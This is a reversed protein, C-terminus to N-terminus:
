RAIHFVFLFIPIPHVVFLLKVVIFLGLLGYFLLWNVRNLVFYLM